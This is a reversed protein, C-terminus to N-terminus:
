APNGGEHRGPFGCLGEEEEGPNVHHDGPTHLGLPHPEQGPHLQWPTSPTQQCQHTYDALRTAVVLQSPNVVSQGYVTPPM